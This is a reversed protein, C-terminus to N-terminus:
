NNNIKPRKFSWVQEGTKADLCVMQGFMDNTLLDDSPEFVVCVKDNDVAPFGFNEAKITSKWISEGTIADLCYLKGDNTGIFARNGSIAPMTCIEAEFNYKWALIDTLVPKEENNEQFIRNCDPGKESMPWDNTPQTKTGCSVVIMVMSIILLFLSKRM